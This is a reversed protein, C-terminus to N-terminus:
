HLCNDMQGRQYVRYLNHQPVICYRQALAPAAYFEESLSALYVPRQPLATAIKQLALRPNFSFPDVTPWGAVEVDPRLGEVAVFYRFVFYEDTDVYWQAVILADPPLHQLTQRGFDYAARDGRKNPDLYYALGDRAGTGIQPIGFTEETVGSARLLSPATAYLLPMAVVHLAMAGALWRRRSRSFRKALRALGMGIAVAWFLHSGLFFAFQDSVRYLLGFALYVGYLALARMWLRRASRHGVWWGYLGLAVGLPSFQYFLFIVYSLLSQGLTSPALALSGQLFTAGVAPGMVQGLPFTRLLRLLQILYPSFGLVFFLAAPLARRRLFVRWDGLGVASGREAAPRLAWRGVLFREVMLAPLALLALLHNAAGLGLALAAAYLYAPRRREEYAEYFTIALLLLFTFLTYVEPTVAHWWFTHSLALSLTAFLAGAFANTHNLCWRFFLVVSGAAFLASLFNVLWLPDAAPLSQVLLHGIIVYLPHDWAAVGLRAFPWPDPAFTVDVMEALIFSEATIAERQLRIGDGWALSPQLTIVYFALSLLFLILFASRTKM